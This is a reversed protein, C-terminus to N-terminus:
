PHRRKKAGHTDTDPRGASNALQKTATLQGTALLYDESGLEPRTGFKVYTYVLRKLMALENRLKDAHVLKLMAYPRDDTSITWVDSFVGTTIPNTEDWPWRKIFVTVLNYSCLLEDYAVKKSGKKKGNRYVRAEKKVLHRCAKDIANLRQFDAKDMPAQNRSPDGYKSDLEHAL